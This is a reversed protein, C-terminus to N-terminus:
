LFCAAFEKAELTGRVFLHVPDFFRWSRRGALLANFGVIATPRGGEGPERQRKRSLALVNPPRSPRPEGSLHEGRQTGSPSTSSAIAVRPTAAIGPLGPKSQSTM